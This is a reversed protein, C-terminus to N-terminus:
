CALSDGEVFVQEKEEEEGGRVTGAGWGRLWSRGEGQGARGQGGRCRHKGGKDCRLGHGQM